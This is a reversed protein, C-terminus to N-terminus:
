RRRALLWGIAGTALLTAALAALVIVPYPVAASVEVPEPGRQSAPPPM